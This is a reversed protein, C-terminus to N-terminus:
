RFYAHIGAARHRRLAELEPTSQEGSGVTKNVDFLIPTGDHVVYDFKGYEFGLQAPWERVAAHPEVAEVRV